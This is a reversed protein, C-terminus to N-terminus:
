QSDSQARRVESRREHGVESAVACLTLACLLTAEEEEEEEDEKGERTKTDATPGMKSTSGCGFVTSMSSSTVKFQLHAPFGGSVSVHNLFPEFMTLPWFALAKCIQRRQANGSQKKKGVIEELPLNKGTCKFAEM